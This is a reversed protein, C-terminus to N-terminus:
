KLYKKKFISVDAKLDQKYKKVKKKFGRRVKKARRMVKSPVLKDFFGKREKTEEEAEQM